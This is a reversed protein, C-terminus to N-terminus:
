RNPNILIYSYSNSYLVDLKQDYTLDDMTTYNGLHLGVFQPTYLIGNAKEGPNLWSQIYPTTAVKPTLYTNTRFDTVTLGPSAWNYNDLFFNDAAYSQQTQFQIEGTFSLHMPIFAYFAVFILVIAMFVKRFKTKALYAAGLAIPMFLLVIAREGLTNLVLGLVSYAAGTSFIALDLLKIRKKRIMLIAGFACLALFGITVGRSFVQAISDVPSIIAPTSVTQEVIQAIQTPSQTVSIILDIFSFRALTLQVVFYGIVSFIFLYGYFSRTKRNKELISRIFLYLVFFLPVFLHTFTISIYLIVIPIVLTTSKKRTELMFLIFLLALALSFPVAQYDMFYTLSIFFATVVLFGDLKHKRAAYVFLSSALLAGILGYLLFEYAPLSIGSISTTISSLIFFAPWQYYQHNAEYPSLSQTKFFNENLGRFFQSDSTPIMQYFYSLSFLALVIGIALIWKTQNSKSTIAILFM